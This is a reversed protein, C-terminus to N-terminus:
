YLYGLMDVKAIKGDSGDLSKIMIEPYKDTKMGYTKHEDIMFLTCEANCTVFGFKEYIGPNDAFLLILDVNRSKSFSEIEELMAGAIGQNRYKIDVALDIIGLVRKVKGDINMVRYDLGSYGIIYNSKEYLCRFHPRQKFYSRRPYKYDKFAEMLLETIRDEDEEALAIDHIIRM